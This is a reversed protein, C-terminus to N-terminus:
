RYRVIVTLWYSESKPKEFKASVLKKYYLTNSGCSKNHVSFPQLEPQNNSMLLHRFNSLAQKMQFM